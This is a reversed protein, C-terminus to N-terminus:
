ITLGKIAIYEASKIGYQAKVAEKIRQTREKLDTYLTNRNNRITNLANTAVEVSNSTNRVEALYEQLAEIKITPNAPAFSPKLAELSAVLDAFNQTISAYSLQSTSIKKTVVETSEVTKKKKQGRIKNCLETLSTVEKADKGYQGRLTAIINTALDRINVQDGQFVQQRAGVALTYTQAATAEESNIKQITNILDQLENIDDEKRLPVYQNFSKLKIVLSQANQIRAGFTSENTKKAM